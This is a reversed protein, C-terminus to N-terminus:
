RLATGAMYSAILAVAILVVWLDTLRGLFVPAHRLETFERFTISQQFSNLTVDEKLYRTHTGTATIDALYDINTQSANIDTSETGQRSSQLFCGHALDL